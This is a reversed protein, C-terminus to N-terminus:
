CTLMPGHVMLLEIMKVGFFDIHLAALLLRVVIHLSYNPSPIWVQEVM